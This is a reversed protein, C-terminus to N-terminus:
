GLISEVRSIIDEMELEKMENQEKLEAIEKNKLELTANLTTIAETLTSNEDKLTSYKTAVQSVKDSLKDVISQAPTMTQNEM